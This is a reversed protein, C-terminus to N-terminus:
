EGTSLKNYDGDIEKALIKGKPSLSFVPEDDKWKVLMNGKLINQLIGYEIEVGEAWKIVNKLETESVHDPYHVAFVAMLISEAEEDKM